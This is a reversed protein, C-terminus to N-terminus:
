GAPAVAAAAREMMSSEAAQRAAGACQAAIEPAQKLGVIVIVLLIVGLILWGIIHGHSKLFDWIGGTYQTDIRAFEQLMFEIDVDDVAQLQLQRFMDPDFRFRVNKLGQVIEIAQEQEPTLDGKKLKPICPTLMGDEYEWLLLAGRPGKDSPYYYEQKFDRVPTKYGRVFLKPIGLAIQKKAKRHILMPRGKNGTFRLITVNINWGKFVLFIIGAIALMFIWLGIFGFLVWNM